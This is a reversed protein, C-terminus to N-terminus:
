CSIKRFYLFYFFPLIQTQVQEAKLVLAVGEPKLQPKAGIVAATRKKPIEPTNKITEVISNTNEIASQGATTVENPAVYPVYENRGQDYVLWEGTSGNYYMGTSANYYYGSAEHYYYGLAVSTM